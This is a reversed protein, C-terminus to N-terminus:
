GELGPRARRQTPIGTRLGRIGFGTYAAAQITASVTLAAMAGSAGFQPTLALLMLVGAVGSGLLIPYAAREYGLPVTVWLLVMQGLATTSVAASVSIAELHSLVVEGSFLLNVLWPLVFVLLVMGIATCFYSAVLAGRARRARERGGVGGIWSQLGAPLAALGNNLAKQTQDMATYTPLASPGVAAVVSIGAYYYGQSALRSLAASALRWPSPRSLARSATFDHRATPWDRSVTALTALPMVLGAILLACGYSWLPADLGALLGLAAAYAALRVLAENRILFWPEGTGAFYWSSTMGNLAAAACFLSADLWVSPAVVAIIGVCVPLTLALTIARETVSRAYLARRSVGTAGAVAHAGGIPWDLGVAVGALAGISQGIGVAVWGSPGFRSALVPLILVAGIFSFGPVVLFGAFRKVHAALGNQGRQVTM